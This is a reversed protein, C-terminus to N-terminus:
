CRIRRLSHTLRGAHSCLLRVLYRHRSVCRSLGRFPTLASRVSRAPVRPFCFLARSRSSATCSVRCGPSGRLFLLHLALPPPLPPRVESTENDGCCDVPLAAAAASPEPAVAGAPIAATAAATAPAAAGDAAVRTEATADSPGAHAGGGSPRETGEAGTSAAAEAAAPPRSTGFLESNEPVDVEVSRYWVSLEQLLSRCLAPTWTRTPFAESNQLVDLIVVVATRPDPPGVEKAQDRRRSHDRAVRRQRRAAAQLELTRTTTQPM